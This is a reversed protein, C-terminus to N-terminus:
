SLGTLALTFMFFLSDRVTNFRGFRARGDYYICVSM